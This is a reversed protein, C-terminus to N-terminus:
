THGASGCRAGRCPSDRRRKKSVAAVLRRLARSSGTLGVTHQTLQDEHPPRTTVQDIGGTKKKGLGEGHRQAEAVGLAEGQAALEHCGGTVVVEEDGDGLGELVSPDRLCRARKLFHWGLQPLPPPPPPQISSPIARTPSCQTHPGHPQLTPGPMRRQAKSNAQPLSLGIPPPPSFPLLPLKARGGVLRKYLASVFKKRVPRRIPSPCAEPCNISTGESMRGVRPAKPKQSKDPVEVRNPCCSCVPHSPKLNILKQAPAQLARGHEGGGLPGQKQKNSRFTGPM